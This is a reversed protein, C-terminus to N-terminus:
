ALPEGASAVLPAEPADDAPREVMPHQRSELWRRTNAVRNFTFLHLGAVPLLEFRTAKM